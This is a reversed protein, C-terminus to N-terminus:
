LASALERLLRRRAWHAGWGWAGAVAWAAAAGAHADAQVAPPALWAAAHAALAAGALLWAAGQLAAWTAARSTGVVLTCQSPDEPDVHVACVLGSQLREFLRRHLALAACAEYCHHIRQGNWARGAWEYRYRVQVRHRRGDPTSRLRRLQLVAPARHWRRARRARQLASWRRRLSALGWGIFLLAAGWEMAAAIYIWM